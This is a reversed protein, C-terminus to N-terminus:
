HSGPAGVADYVESATLRRQRAELWEESRQELRFLHKADDLNYELLKLVSLQQKQPQALYNILSPESM